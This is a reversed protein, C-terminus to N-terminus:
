GGLFSLLKNRKLQIAMVSRNLRRAITRDSMLHLLIIPIEWWKYSRGTGNSFDGRHYNIRRQRNRYERAKDKDRFNKICKPM